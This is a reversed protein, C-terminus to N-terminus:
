QWQQLKRHDVKNLVIAPRLLQCFNKVEDGATEDRPSATTNVEVLHSSASAELKSTDCTATPPVSIKSVTIQLRGKRYFYGKLIVESQLSFGLNDLFQAPDNSVAVTVCSRIMTPKNHEGVETAGVYKIQWPTSPKALSKCAKVIIPLMSTANKLFYIQEHDTFPEPPVNDCLGQLRQKLKDANADLISGQLFYEQVNVNSPIEGSLPQYNAPEVM